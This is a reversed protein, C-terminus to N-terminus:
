LFRAGKQVEWVEKGLGHVDSGLVEKKAHFKDELSGKGVFCTIEEVERCRSKFAFFIVCYACFWSLSAFKVAEKDHDPM